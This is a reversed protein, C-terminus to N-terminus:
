RLLLITVFLAIAFVAAAGLILLLWYARSSRANGPDPPATSLMAAPQGDYSGYPDANPPGLPSASPASMPTYTTAVM